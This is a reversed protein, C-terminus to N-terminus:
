RDTGTSMSTAPAAAVALVICLAASITRSGFSRSM